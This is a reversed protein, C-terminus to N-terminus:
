TGKMMNVARNLATNWRSGIMTSGQSSSTQSASIKEEAALIEEFRIVKEDM